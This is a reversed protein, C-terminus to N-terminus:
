AAQPTSTRSPWRCPRSRRHAWSPSRVRSPSSTVSTSCTTASPGTSRAAEEEEGDDAPEETGDDAPEETETETTEPEEETGCAAAVLALVTAAAVRRLWLSRHM